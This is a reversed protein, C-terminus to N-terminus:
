FVPSLKKDVIQKDSLYTTAYELYDYEQCSLLFYNGSLENYKRVTVEKGGGLKLKM